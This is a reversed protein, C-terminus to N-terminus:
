RVRGCSFAWARGPYTASRRALRQRRYALPVTPREVAAPQDTTSSRGESASRRPRDVQGSVTFTGRTDQGHRGAVEARSGEAFLAAHDAAETVASSRRDM